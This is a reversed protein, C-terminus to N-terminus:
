KQSPVSASYPWCNTKRCLFCLQSDENKLSMLLPLKPLREFWPACQTDKLWLLQKTFAISGQSPSSMSSLSRSINTRRQLEVVLRIRPGAPLTCVTKIFRFEDCGCFVCCITFHMASADRMSIETGILPFPRLFKNVKMTFNSRVLCM